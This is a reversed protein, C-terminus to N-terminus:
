GGLQPPAKEQSYLISHSKPQSTLLISETGQESEPGSPFTGTEAVALFIGQQPSTWVQVAEGVTLSSKRM